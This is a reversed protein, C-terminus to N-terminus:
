GSVCHCSPDLFIKSKPLIQKLHEREKDDIPMNRLDMWRLKKLNSMQDPFTELGNSWIDLVELNECDGIRNPLALLKNKSAILKKLNKLEGISDPLYLLKNGSVNLIQLNPLLGIQEPISDLKNKSLNLEQLYKFKLIEMPFVKLKKKSLDLRYVNNPNLLAENLNNYIHVVDLQSSDLAQAKAYFLSSLVFLFSLFIKKIQTM